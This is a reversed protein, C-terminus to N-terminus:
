SFDRRHMSSSEPGSGSADLTYIAPQALAVVVDTPVSLASGRQVVLQQQTNATLEFPVQANVQDAGVFRLPLLQGGMLVQTGNLNTPFPVSQGIGTTDALGLGYVSVLGGPSIFSGVGSAANAVATTLPAAAGSKLSVTLSATGGQVTIGQIAVAVFTLKVQPPSSNKPQWTGSWNGNGAHVLNVQSDGNSFTVVVTGATLPTGCNDVVRAQVSAPQLLPVSTSPDTLTTPQV